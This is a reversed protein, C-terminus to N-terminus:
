KKIIHSKITNFEKNLLTYSSSFQKALRFDEMARSNYGESLMLLALNRLIYRQLPNKKNIYFTKTFSQYALRKEGLAWFCLARINGTAIKLFEFRSKNDLLFESELNTLYKQAVKFKKNEFARTALIYLGLLKDYKKKEISIGSASLKAALTKDSKIYSQLKDFMDVDTQAKLDTILNSDYYVPGKISGKPKFYNCYNTWLNNSIPYLSENPTLSFNSNAYRRSVVPWDTVSKIMQKANNPLLKNLKKIIANKPVQLTAQVIFSGKSVYTTPTVDFIITKSMGEPILKIKRINNKAIWSNPVILKVFSNRLNGILATLSVRIQCVKNIEPASSPKASLQYWEPIQEVSAHLVGCLCTLCLSLLFIKFKM